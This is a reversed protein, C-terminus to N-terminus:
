WLARIRTQSRSGRVEVTRHAARAGLTEGEQGIEFDEESGERGAQEARPEHDEGGAHHVAPASEPQQSAPPADPHPPRQASQGEARSEPGVAAPGRPSRGDIRPAVQRLGQPPPPPCPPLSNEPARLCKVKIPCKSYLSLCSKAEMELFVHHQLSVVM